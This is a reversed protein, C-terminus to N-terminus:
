TEREVLIFFKQIYTTNGGYIIKITAIYYGSIDSTSSQYTYTYVKNAQSTMSALSVKTTGASDDISIQISTVTNVDLIATFKVATGLLFTKITERESM